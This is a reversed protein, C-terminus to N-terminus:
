KLKIPFYYDMQYYGLTEAAAKSTIINGMERRTEDRVFGHKGLFEDTERLMAEVDTQQDIDTAVAYLGGEFDVIEFEDPVAISDDYLYLWCLENGCGCLFDKPHISEPLDSFWKNFRDFKEQGFMGNGSSVMKCQPIEIIRIGQM